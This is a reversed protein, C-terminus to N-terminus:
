SRKLRERRRTHESKDDTRWRLQVSGLKEEMGQLLDSSEMYQLMAYEKGHDRKVNM